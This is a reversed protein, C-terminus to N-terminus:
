REIYQHHADMLHADMLHADMLHADMLHADMLHADMLHAIATTRASAPDLASTSIILM